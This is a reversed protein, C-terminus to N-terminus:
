FIMKNNKTSTPNSSLAECKCHLNEAVQAVGGTWKERTIKFIPIKYLIEGPQGRVKTRWIEAEWTALIVPILWWCGGEDFCILEMYM